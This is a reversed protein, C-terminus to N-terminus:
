ARGQEGESSLPGLAPYAQSSSSQPAEKSVGLLVEDSLRPSPPPSPRLGFRERPSEWTWQGRERQEPTLREENRICLHRKGYHAISRDDLWRGRDKVRSKEWEEYLLKHVAATHRMLHVPGPDEWGYQALIEDRAKRYASTPFDWVKAGDPPNKEKERFYLQLAPELVEVGQTTGTKTTEGGELVGLNPSVGSHGM